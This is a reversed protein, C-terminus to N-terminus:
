LNSFEAPDLKVLFWSVSDDFEIEFVGVPAGAVNETILHLEVDPGVLAGATVFQETYTCQPTQHLGDLWKLNGREAAATARMIDTENSCEFMVIGAPQEPEAARVHAIIAFAVICGALVSVFWMATVAATALRTMWNVERDSFEPNLKM